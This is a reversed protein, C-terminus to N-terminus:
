AICLSVYAHNGTIGSVENIPFAGYFYRKINHPVRLRRGTVVWGNATKSLVLDGIKTGASGDANDTHYVGVTIAAVVTAPLIVADNYDLNLVFQANEYSHGGRETIRLDVVNGNGIAAGLVAKSELSADRMNYAGHENIDYFQTVM